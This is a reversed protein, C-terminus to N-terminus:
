VEREEKGHNNCSVRDCGREREREREGGRERESTQIRERDRTLLASNRWHGGATEQKNNKGDTELM